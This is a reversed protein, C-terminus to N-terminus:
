KTNGCYLLFVLMFTGFRFDRRDSLEQSSTLNRYSIESRWVEKVNWKIFSINKFLEFDSQFCAKELVIKSFLKYFM